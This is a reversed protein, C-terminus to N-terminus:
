RDNPLGRSHEDVFVEGAADLRAQVRSMIERAISLQEAPPPQDLCTVNMEVQAPHRFGVLVVAQEFRQLCSWLAIRVLDSTAPGVHRRVEDLGQSLVALPEATFWRKRSRHDGESFLRPATPDYSGTLLGQALPKNVLVGCGHEEAFAFIGSSRDQPTLLNDRVALVDPQIREFLERFRAVKDTRPGEALRDLVFRHPGRMGVTRILREEPFRRMAEIAPELYVDGSGFEAHHFFYIDVHDTRLNDLTQELQHRMHRPHYGHPATGAFYGVKSSLVVSDRPVQEVLRGLLRESRGHGYVDATDFLSVGLEHARELGALAAGEDIPGWGMPLGLNVDPGGIAWCGIGVASV